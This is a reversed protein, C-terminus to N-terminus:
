SLSLHRASTHILYHVKPNWLIHPIEQSASFWNAESSPIDQKFYTLFYFQKYQSCRSFM